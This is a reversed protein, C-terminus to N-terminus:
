EGAEVGAARCIRRVTERTYVNEIADLIDKQRMGSKAAEVIEDALPSRAKEVRTAAASRRVRAETLAQKAEAEEALAQRYERAAQQLPNAM